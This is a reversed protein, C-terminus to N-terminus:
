AHHGRQPGEVRNTRPWLREGKTKLLASHEDPRGQQRYQRRGEFCVGSKLSGPVRPWGGEGGGSVMLDRVRAEALGDLIDINGVTLM